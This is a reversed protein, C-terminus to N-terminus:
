PQSPSQLPIFQNGRVWGIHVPKGAADTGFAPKLDGPAAPANPLTAPAPLARTTDPILQPGAGPLTPMVQSPLASPITRFQPSSSFAPDILCPECGQTFGNQTFSATGCGSACGGSSASYGVSSGCSSGSSGRGGRGKCRGFASADAATAVLCAVAVAATFFAKSVM